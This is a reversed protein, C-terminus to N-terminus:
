SLRSFEGVASITGGVSFMIKRGFRDQLVGNGFAGTMIGMASFAQWLGQWLAPLIMEQGFPSGFSMSSLLIGPTLIAQSSTDRQSECAFARPPECLLRFHPSPARFSFMM